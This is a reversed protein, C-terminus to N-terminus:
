PINPSMLARFVPSELVIEDLTSIVVKGECFVTHAIAVSLYHFLEVKNSANQLYTNRNQCFNGMGMM